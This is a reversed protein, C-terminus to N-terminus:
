DCRHKAEEPQSASDSHLRGHCQEICEDCIYVTAAPQETPLGRFLRGVESKNRGCFSCKLRM